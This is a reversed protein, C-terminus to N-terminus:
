RYRNEVFGEEKDELVEVDGFEDMEAGVTDDIDPRKCSIFDMKDYPILKLSKTMFKDYCFWVVFFIPLLIYGDIFSKYDFPKFCSWSQVLILLVGIVIAFYNVWPFLKAQYPISSLPFGQVKLGKRFRLHIILIATWVIFCAVGIVNVIYSYAVSSGANISLLSLFGWIHSFHIAVYPIGRKTTKGFVKPAYGLKALTFLSRSAFYIATNISSFCTIWVMTTVLYKSNAWGANTMAITMPSRMLKDSNSLMPDTYSVTIGYAVTLGFYVYFVRFLTNKVATPIAKRPNRTEAAILSVGEIGSYYGAAYVFSNAIGSFGGHLPHNKFPNGPNKGHIGGAAYVIAFVYFASIFGLKLFGLYYEVEGWWSVELTQFLTFCFYFILFWGWMPVTESYSELASSLSTYESIINGVWVLWYFIGIAAGFGPTMFRSGLLAFNADLMSNLEGISNMIALVVIGVISFGALLGAPGAAKFSNAMGIFVGPGIIGCLTILNIHRNKIGLSLGNQQFPKGHSDTVIVPSSENAVISEEVVVNDKKTDSMAKVKILLLRIALIYAMKRILLYREIERIRVKLSGGDKVRRKLIRCTHQEM